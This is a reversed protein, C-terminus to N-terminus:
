VKAMAVVVEDEGSNESATLEPAVLREENMGDVLIGPRGERSCHTDQYAEIAPHSGADSLLHPSANPRNRLLTM